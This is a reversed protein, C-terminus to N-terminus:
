RTREWIKITHWTPQSRNSSWCNKNKRSERYNSGLWDRKYDNKKSAFGHMSSKSKYSQWSRKVNKISFAWTLTSVSNTCHLCTSRVPLTVKLINRVLPPLMRDEIPSWSSQLGRLNINRGLGGSSKRRRYEKICTYDSSEGLWMCGSYKKYKLPRKRWDRM